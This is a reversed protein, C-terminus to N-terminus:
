KLSAKIATIIKTSMPNTTSGWTAALNGDRDILVKNFNVASTQKFFFWNGTEKLRYVTMAETKTDSKNKDLGMTDSGVSLEFHTFNSTSLVKDEVKDLGANAADVALANVEGEVAEEGQGINLANGINKVISAFKGSKAVEQASLPLASIAIITSTLLLQKM